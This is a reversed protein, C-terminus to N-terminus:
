LVGHLQDGIRVSGLDVVVVNKGLKGERSIEAGNGLM